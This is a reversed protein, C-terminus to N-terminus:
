IVRAQSTTRPTDATITTTTSNILASAFLPNRAVFADYGLNSDGQILNTAESLFAVFNGTSSLAPNFSHGNGELGTGSLNAILVQGTQRDKIFVDSRGNSSGSGLTTADTSFAVYRGNASISPPENNTGNSQIGSASVNVRTTTGLALDRVFTDILGNNDGVVMNTARSTFVVVNGNASIDIGFNGSIDNGQVGVDSISALTTTGLTIKRIFVDSQANTDSAVLDTKTSAIAVASGDGSIRAQLCDGGTGQVGLHTLSVPATQSTTTTYVFVDATNNTDNAVLNNAQSIFAVNIGDDSISPSFSGSAGQTGSSSVSVRQVVGSQRNLRFIDAAGNTDNTVLNSALSTYVIYRADPTMGAAGLVAGNGQVGGVGLSLRETLNLQRDRLFLDAAGNTDNAVLNTAQSIFMVYRGDSSTQPTQLENNLNAQSGTPAVTARTTSATQLDRVFVDNRANTDGAVLNTAGSDFSVFRGDASIGAKESDGGVGENGVSNISARTTVALQRDHM